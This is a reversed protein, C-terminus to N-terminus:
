YINAPISHVRIQIVKSVIDYLNYCTSIVKTTILINNQIYRNVNVLQPVIREVEVIKPIEIVKEVIREVDHVKPVVTSKEVIKEVPVEVFKEVEVIKEVEKFVPKEVM